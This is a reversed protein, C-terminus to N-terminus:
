DAQPFPDIRGTRGRELKEIVTLDPSYILRKDLGEYMTLGEQALLRNWYERSQYNLHRLKKRKRAM